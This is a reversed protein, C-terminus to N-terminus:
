PGAGTLEAKGSCRGADDAELKQRKGVRQGREQLEVEVAGVYPQGFARLLLTFDLTSGELTQGVLDATLPALRYEAVDFCCISVDTGELTAEYGGEPLGSLSRLCLGFEDLMMTYSAYHNGSLRLSLKLEARPRQPSAILLRVTDRGARYLAKDSTLSVLDPKSFPEGAITAGPLTVEQEGLFVVAGRQKFEDVTAASFGLQDIGRAAEEIWGPQFFAFRKGVKVRDGVRQALRWGDLTVRRDRLEPAPPEQSTIEAM